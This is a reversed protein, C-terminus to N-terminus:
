PLTAGSPSQGRVLWRRVAVLPVRWESVPEGDESHSVRAGILEYPAYGAPPAVVYGGAEIREALVLEEHVIAEGSEPWLVWWFQWPVTWFAAPRGALLRAAAERRQREYDTPAWPGLPALFDEHYDGLRIEGRLADWGEEQQEPVSSVFHIDFM